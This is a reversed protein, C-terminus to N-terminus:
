PKLSSWLISPVKWLSPNSEFMTLKEFTETANKLKSYFWVPKPRIRFPARLVTKQTNELFLANNVIGVGSETEKGDVEQFAGWPTVVALYSAGGWYNIGISGFKLEAISKDFVESIRKDKLLKPHIIVTAVLTGCLKENAFLTSRKIFDIVNNSPISTESVISCFPEVSFCVDGEKQSDVSIVTWPLQDEEPLGLQESKPHEELFDAYRKHAGPYFAKRLPVKGLLSRIEDLFQDRKDWNSDMIVM